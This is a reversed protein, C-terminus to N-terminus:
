LSAGLDNLAKKFAVLAKRAEQEDLNCLEHAVSNRLKHARWVSNLDSFRAGSKKLKEGLSGGFGHRGLAYDLLKDADLIAAATHSQFSDIIRIWHSKIYELEKPGLKKRRSRKYLIWLVFLVDFAFFSIIIIVIWTPM